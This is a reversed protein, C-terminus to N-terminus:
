SSITPDKTKIVLCNTKQTIESGINHTLILIEQLHKGYNEIQHHQTIMIAGLSYLTESSYNVLNVEKKLTLNTINIQEASKKQFIQMTMLLLERIKQQLGLYFTMIRLLINKPAKSSVQQKITSMKQQPFQKKEM